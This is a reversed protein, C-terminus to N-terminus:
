EADVWVRRAFDTKPDVHMEVRCKRMPIEIFLSDDFFDSFLPSCDGLVMDRKFPAPSSGTFFGDADAEVVALLPLLEDEPNSRYMSAHTRHYGGYLLLKGAAFEKVTIHRNMELVKFDDNKCSGTIHLFEAHPISKILMGNEIIAKPLPTTTELGRGLCLRNRRAPDLMEKGYKKSQDIVVTLQQVALSSQDIKVIKNIYSKNGHKNMFYDAEYNEKQSLPLLTPTPVPRKGLAKVRDKYKGWLARAETAKMVPVIEQTLTMMAEVEDMWGLLAKATTSTAM